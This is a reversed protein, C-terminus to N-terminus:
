YAHTITLQEMLSVDANITHDALLERVYVPLDSLLVEVKPYTIKMYYDGCTEYTDVDFCYLGKSSLLLCEEILTNSKQSGYRKGETSIPLRETFFELLSENEERSRCVFEPVCGIGGSVCAFIRGNSDVGFWMIDESQLDIESYRM